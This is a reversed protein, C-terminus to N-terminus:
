VSCYSDASPATLGGPVMDNRLFTLEEFVKNAILQGHRTLRWGGDTTTLLDRKLLKHLRPWVRALREVGYKSRLAAESLGSDARLHMHCFDTLSEHEALAELQEAGLVSEFSLAEPGEVQQAYAKLSKPNWFRTGFAGLDRAYSHSSLGIGWYNTDNWYAQNHRSEFGPRAFNSIEYKKLGMRALHEEIRAFMEIQEGEPARGSDMPHGQPVTLCYASLHHPNFDAVEKLDEELGSLNQGPLAFLLDFSYNLGYKALLALTARTDAASHRRGCVKLLDDDFTQAGVSFRNIGAQLYTQLKSEDITAPNIEITREARTQFKLGSNALEGCIDLILEPDILSPTGGGFYLTAIETESWLHRRQRIEARVQEVYKKPSLIENQEFTTFDCYRCRQLCYPIHVYVSLAM